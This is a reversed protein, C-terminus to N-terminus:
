SVRDLNLFRPDHLYPLLLHWAIISPIGAAIHPSYEDDKYTTKVNSYTQSSMRLGEHEFGPDVSDLLTLALEATADMIDQPVATDGSRPFQLTQGSNSKCGLYNLRDISRTAMILSKNRDTDDACDWADTGLRGDFYIQAEAITSYQM